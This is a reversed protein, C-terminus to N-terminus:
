LTNVEQRAVILQNNDRGRNARDKIYRGPNKPVGRKPVSTQRIEFM